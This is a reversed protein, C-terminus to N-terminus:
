GCESGLEFVTASQRGHIAKGRVAVVNRERESIAMVVSRLDSKRPVSVTVLKVLDLRHAVAM